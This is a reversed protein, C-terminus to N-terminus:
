TIVVELGKKSIIHGIRLISNHIGQCKGLPVLSGPSLPLVGTALLISAPAHGLSSM